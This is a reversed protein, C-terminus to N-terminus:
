HSSGNLRRIIIHFCYIFLYCHSHWDNKLKQALQVSRDLVNQPIKPWVILLPIKPWVILVWVILVRKLVTIGYDM